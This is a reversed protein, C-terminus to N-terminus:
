LVEDKDVSITGKIKKIQYDTFDANSELGDGYIIEDPRTIKVFENSYIIEKESDWVLEETELKEGRVNVVVVNDRVLMETKKEYKKGYNASLRSEVHMKENYFYVKLGDKFELYPEEESVHSLVTNGILKVKVMGGESFLIEVGKGTEVIEEKETLERVKGLDTECAM